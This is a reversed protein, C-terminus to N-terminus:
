RPVHHSRRDANEDAGCWHAELDAVVDDMYDFGLRRTLEYVEAVKAVAVCQQFHRLGLGMDMVFGPRYTNAIMAFVADSGAVRTIGGRHTGPAERLVYIRWPPLAETKFGADVPLHYKEMRTRDRRLAGIDRRLAKLGDAWLKLRPISSHVLYENDPSRSVVCVDDSVLSHGRQVLFAAITSKGAGPPGVFAACGRGVKVASAHLPLLGRQHCLAGFVSGLLFLRVDREDSGDLREVLIERGDRVLYRAVDPVTFLFTGKGVQYDPNSVRPDPLTEPVRGVVISIDTEGSRDCLPLESLAICSRVRLGHLRYNFLQAVHTM